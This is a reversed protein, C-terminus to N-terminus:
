EGGIQELLVQIAKTLQSDKSLGDEEPKNEVYVDPEIPMNELNEGTLLFWGTGPIRFGSGDLLRINNTGIVAGFTPVGILKGLQLEKFAAPFIEADSYCFENILVVTPKDWRFLSAYNKDGGREKSYMYATRRLIEIIQEHINGGGNYRIDIVLGQKDMEKYLDKEFKKLNEGGMSAIYLYGLRNNSQGHVYDKNLKVWNDRVLRIIPWPTKPTVKINKKKGHHIITLMIEKDNKNRLLAYFNEGKEIKKANIHTIIDGPRIDVDSANVPADPIIDKVKVGEGKYASDYIIGLAGTTEGGGGSEWIGLHSANLEGIMMSVINHFDRTTRMHMALDKYKHYMADWDVGHFDSDYFGDKLAWWAEKFVQEREKQMDIGIQVSFSLPKSQTSTISANFIGGTGSLYYIQKKDKSVTFQRPRVNSKTVQKLEKGFWDVSWIDNSNQNNSYIAFQKGDPSQAVINYWGLVRIVDHIRDEIDEFDIKVVVDKDTSDPTAEELEDETKDEDEKHLFVYKMWLNGIADRSAFAIRRGDSSWMPKYDDNPHNSINIPEKSGDALVVFIDERWGLVTRSFTLWKSDPSWDIWLVDNEPCIKVSKQGHKNMVFLERRNKFYAIKEGDPSFVPKIETEETEMLKTTTFFFDEYFKTEIEPEVTYIDMDGDAMSSFVLMEKEPHWSVSKEIFPTETVRTIKEAKGDELQMVFIDGHIIFALEDEDPSLAFESADRTFNDFVFPSEKYDETVFITPKKREAEIVDYTYLYGACEYAILTGDFSMTPFHIDEKEFTMQETVKSEMDMRWINSIHRKGRDSLFYLKQDVTSYMPYADKGPYDTLRQSTEDSIIKVWIDSNAGGKYHRRWWASGGRTYFFSDGQSAFFVHFATFSSIMEPLGAHISVKYLVPRLTHRHSTFIINKSDPTWGYLVDYTSYYTMRRAPSSGDAAIVYIDDSGWQDAQFAIWKNDPSWYSRGEYGSSVTLREAKGGSVGVVWIDGYCSFSIKKADPSLAPYQAGWVQDAFINSCLVLVMCVILKIINDKM